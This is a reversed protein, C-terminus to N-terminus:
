RCHNDTLLKSVSLLNSPSSPAYSVNTLKLRQQTGQTDFVTCEVTGVATPITQAGGAVLIPRKTAAHDFSSFLTKDNVMHVSCGSDVILPKFTTTTTTTHDAALAFSDIATHAAHMPRGGRGALFALMMALTLFVGIHM